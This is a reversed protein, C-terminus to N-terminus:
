DHSSKFENSFLLDELTTDGSLQIIECKEGFLREKEKKLKGTSGSQKRREAQFRRRLRRGEANKGRDFNQHIKPRDSFIIM